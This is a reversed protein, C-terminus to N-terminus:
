KVEVRPALKKEETAPLTFGLMVDALARAREPHVRAFVLAAEPGIFEPNLRFLFASAEPITDEIVRYAEQTRATDFRAPQGASTPHTVRATLGNGTQCQVTKGSESDPAAAFEDPYAEEFDLIVQRAKKRLAEAQTELAKATKYDACAQEFESRTLVGDSM